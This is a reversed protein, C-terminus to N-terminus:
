GQLVSYFLVIPLDSFIFPCAIFLWLGKEPSPRTELEDLDSPGFAGKVGTDLPRKYSGGKLVGLPMGIIM